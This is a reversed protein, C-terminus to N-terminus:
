TSLGPTSARYRTYSVPVLLEISKFNASTKSYVTSIRYCYLSLKLNNGYGLFLIQKDICRTQLCLAQKVSKTTIAHTFCVIGDRVRVHFRVAGITSHRMAHSLLDSGLRNLLSKQIKNKKKKKKKKKRRYNVDYFISMMTKFKNFNIIIM